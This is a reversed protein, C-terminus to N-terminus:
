KKLFSVRHAEGVLWHKNERAVCEAHTTLPQSRAKFNQFNVRFMLKYELVVKVRGTCVTGLLKKVHVLIIDETLVVLRVFYGYDIGIFKM